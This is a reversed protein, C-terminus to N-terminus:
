ANVLAFKRNCIRLLAARFGPIGKVDAAAEAQAIVYGFVPVAVRRGDLTVVDASGTAGEVAVQMAAGLEAFGAERTVGTPLEVHAPGAQIPMAPEVTGPRPYGDAADAVPLERGVRDHHQVPLLM